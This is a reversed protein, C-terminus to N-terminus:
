PILYPLLIHCSVSVTVGCIIHVLILDSLLLAIYTTHTVYRVSNFKGQHTQGTQNAVQQTPRAKTPNTQCTFQAKLRATQSRKKQLSHSARTQNAHHKTVSEQSFVLDSKREFTLVQISDGKTLVQGFVLNQDTLNTQEMTGLLPCGQMQVHLHVVVSFVERCASM